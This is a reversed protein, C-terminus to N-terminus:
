IAEVTSEAGCALCKIIWIKGKKSMDTDISGCTPCRVYTQIFRRYLDQLSRKSVKGYIELAGSPNIAGSLASGKLLYRAIIRPNRNIRQSIQQLNKIVTKNGVYDVDLDPLDIPRAERNFQLRSYARELLREYDELISM